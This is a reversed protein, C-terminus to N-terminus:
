NLSKKNAKDVASIVAFTNPDLGKRKEEVRM